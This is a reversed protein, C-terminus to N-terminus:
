PNYVIKRVPNERNKFCFQQTLAQIKAKKGGLKVEVVDSSLKLPNIKFEFSKKDCSM